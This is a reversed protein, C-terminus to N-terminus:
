ALVASEKYRIVDMNEIYSQETHDGSLTIAGNIVPHITSSLDNAATILKNKLIPKDSLTFASVKASEVLRNAHDNFVASYEKVNEVEGNM